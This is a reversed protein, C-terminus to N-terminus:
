NGPGTWQPPQVAQQPPAAQSDQTHTPGNWQQVNGYTAAQSSSVQPVTAVGASQPPATARAQPQIHATQGANQAPVERYAEFSTLAVNIENPQRAPRTPQGNGLSALLQTAATRTRQDPHANLARRMWLGAEEDRGAEHLVYGINYLAASEGVAFALHPKAEQFRDSRALALGLQYRFSQNKNDLETAKTLSEVAQAWEERDSQITGLEAWTPAHEPYKRTTAELIAVAEAVRGTAYEVRAIGLRAEVCDDNDALINTYQAKAEAHDGMEERWRAFKLLTEEGQGLSKRASKYSDTAEATLSALPDDADKKASAFPLMESTSCGTQVFLLLALGAAGLERKM